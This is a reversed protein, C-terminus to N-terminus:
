WGNFTTIACADKDGTCVWGEPVTRIEYSDFDNSYPLTGLTTARTTVTRSNTVEPASVKETKNRQPKIQQANVQSCAFSIFLVMQIFIYFSKRKM